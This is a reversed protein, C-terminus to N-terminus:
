LLGRGKYLADLLHPQLLVPDLACLAGNLLVSVVFSIRRVFCAKVLSGGELLSLAGKALHDLSL